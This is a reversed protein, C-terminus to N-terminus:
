HKFIKHLNLDYPTQPYGCISNEVMNILGTKICPAIELNMDAIWAPMVDDGYKSDKIGQITKIGLEKLKIKNM